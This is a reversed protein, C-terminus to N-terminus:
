IYNYVHIKWHFQSSYQQHLDFVLYMNIIQGSFEYNVNNFIKNYRIQTCILMNYSLNQLLVDHKVEMNSYEM